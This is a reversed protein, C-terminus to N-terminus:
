LLDYHFVKAIIRWEGDDRIFSLFDTFRKGMMECTLVALATDGGAFRISEIEYAYVDGSRAPPTRDAIVRMYAPMDYHLHAGGSSTHYHADPHFVSQLVQTDCHYLGDYYRKLASTIEAFPPTM